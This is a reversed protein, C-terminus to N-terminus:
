FDILPDSIAIPFLFPPEIDETRFIRTGLSKKNASEEVSEARKKERLNWIELSGGYINYYIGGSRESLSLSLSISVQNMMTMERHMAARMLGMRLRIWEGGWWLFLSGGPGVVMGSIM